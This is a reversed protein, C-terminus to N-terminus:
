AGWSGYYCRYKAPLPFNRERNKNQEGNNCWEGFEAIICDNQILPCITHFSNDGDDPVVGHADDGLDAGDAGLQVDVDFVDGLGDHLIHEAHDHQDTQVTAGDVRGGDAVAEGGQPVLHLHLDGHGALFDKVRHM